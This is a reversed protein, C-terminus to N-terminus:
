CVDEMQASTHDWAVHLSHRYIFEKLYNVHASNRTFCASFDGCVLLYEYEVTFYLQEIDNLVETYEDKLIVKSYTDCPM